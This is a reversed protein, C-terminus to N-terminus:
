TSPSQVSTTTLVHVGFEKLAESLACLPLGVVNFYDGEIREIIVAGLGQIGYAGAKDLPEKSKVYADIEPRSLKRVYVTTEVSRTITKNASTDIITFGTVVSHFKGSITELMKRADDESHPKGMIRNDSIIVTDAAIIVAHKHKAASANAKRLSLNRALQHPEMGQYIHEEYDGPDVEFKLGIQELLEKRRPSASALIIRRLLHTEM